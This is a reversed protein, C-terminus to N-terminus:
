ATQRQKQYDRFVAFTMFIDYSAALEVHTRPRDPRVGNLSPGSTGSAHIICVFDVTLSQWAWVMYLKHRFRLTDDYGGRNRSHLALRQGVSQRHRFTILERDQMRRLVPHVLLTGSIGPFQLIALCPSFNPM